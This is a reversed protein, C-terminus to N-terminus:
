FHYNANEAAKERLLIYLDLISNMGKTIIFLQSQWYKERDWLVDKINKLNNSQVQEILLVELYQFPNTDHYCMIVVLIDLVEM